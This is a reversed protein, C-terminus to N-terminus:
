LGEKSGDIPDYPMTAVVEADSCQFSASVGYSSEVRVALRAGGAHKPKVEEISLDWLVNQENFGELRELVMGSFRLKVLQHRRLVHTGGTTLERGVEFMHVDMELIPGSAGRRDLRVALVEADHFSPPTESGSELLAVNRILDLRSM